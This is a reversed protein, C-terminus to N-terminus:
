NLLSALKQELEEGRLSTAILKGDPGILFNQPIGYVGYLKAASNDFYKLDSVQTWFLGDSHIAKLWADKGDARDLSVGLVTFNKGKYQQYAKVVNPNERRCPGCWSAWFDILVYKGRFDSLKVVKGSTDPMEFDPVVRGVMVRNYLDVKEKIQKGYYSEQGATNMLAFLSQAKPDDEFLIYRQYIIAASAPSAPHQKIFAVTISDDMKQLLKYEKDFATTSTAQQGYNTAEMKRHYLDALKKVYANRAVRYYHLYEDQAKSGKIVASDLHHVECQISMTANEMFLTVVGAHKRDNVFSLQYIAAAPIDGTMTFQGNNIYASDKVYDNLLLYVKGQQIGKIAGKLTFGDGAKMVHATLLLLGALFIKKM